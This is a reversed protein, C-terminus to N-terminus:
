RNTLPSGVWHRMSRLMQGHPVIEWEYYCNQCQVNTVGALGEPLEPRDSRNYVM